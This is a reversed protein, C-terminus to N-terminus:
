KFRFKFEVNGQDEFPNTEIGRLQKTFSISQKTRASIREAGTPDVAFYNGEQYFGERFIEEKEDTVSNTSCM